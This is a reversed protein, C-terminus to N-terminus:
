NAYNYSTEYKKYSKKDSSYAKKFTQNYKSFAKYLYSYYANYFYNKAFNFYWNMKMKPMYQYNEVFYTMKTTMEKYWATAENKYIFNGFFVPKDGYMIGVEYSAGNAYYYCTFYQGDAFEFKKTKDYKPTAM